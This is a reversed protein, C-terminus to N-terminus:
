ESSTLFLNSPTTYATIDDPSTPVTSHVHVLHSWYQATFMCWTVETSHQSCAGPSKLVTSNVHVLHSWYQATFMRWTVHTSHQSCAGPSTLVTSHVHVLHSWYQATFLRRFTHLGVTLCVHCSEHMHVLWQYMVTYATIPDTPPMKLLGVQV